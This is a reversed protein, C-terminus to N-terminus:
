CCIGFVLDDLPHICVSVSTQIGKMDWVQNTQNELYESRECDSGESQCIGVVGDEEKNQCTSKEGPVTM